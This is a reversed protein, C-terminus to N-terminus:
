PHKGTAPKKGPPPASLVLNDIIMDTGYTSLGIMRDPDLDVPQHDWADLIIKDDVWLRLHGERRTKSMSVINFELAVHYKKGPEVSFCETRAIPQSLRYCVTAQNFYQAAITTYGKSFSGTVPDASLRIGIDGVHNQANPKLTVDFAVRVAPWQCPAILISRDEEGGVAQLQGDKIVWRGKIVKFADLTKPDDFDFRRVPQWDLPRAHERRSAELFRRMQDDQQRAAPPDAAQALLPLLLLPVAILAFKSSLRPM